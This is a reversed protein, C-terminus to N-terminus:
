PHFHINTEIRSGCFPNFRANSVIGLEFLIVLMFFARVQSTAAITVGNLVASLMTQLSGSGGSFLIHHTAHSESAHIVTSAFALLFKTALCVEKLHLSVSDVQYTPWEKALITLISPSSVPSVLTSPSFTGWHWKTWWLDWM